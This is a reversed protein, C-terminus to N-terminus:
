RGKRILVCQQCDPLSGVIHPEEIEHAKGSSDDLMTSCTSCESISHIIPSNIIELEEDPEGGDAYGDDPIVMREDGKVRHM